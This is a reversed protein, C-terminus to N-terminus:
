MALKSSKKVCIIRFGRVTGNPVFVVRFLPRVSSLIVFVSTSFHYTDFINYKIYLGLGLGLGLALEVCM